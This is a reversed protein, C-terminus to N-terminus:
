VLFGKNILALKRLFKVDEHEDSDLKQKENQFWDYDFAAMAKDEKTKTEKNFYSLVLQLANEQKMTKILEALFEQEVEQDTLVIDTNVILHKYEAKM